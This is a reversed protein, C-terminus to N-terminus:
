CGQYKKRFKQWHQSFLPWNLWLRNYSCFISDETGRTLLDNRGSQIYSCSGLIAMKTSVCRWVELEKTTHLNDHSPRSPHTQKNFDWSFNIRMVTADIPEPSAPLPLDQTLSSFRNALTWVDDYFAAIPASRISRSWSDAIALVFSFSSPFSPPFSTTSSGSSPVGDLMVIASFPGGASANSGRTPRYVFHPLRIVYHPCIVSRSASRWLVGPGFTPPPPHVDPHRPVPGGSIKHM